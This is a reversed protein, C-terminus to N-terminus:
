KWSNAYATNIANELGHQDEGNFMAVLLLGNEYYQMFLQLGQTATLGLYGGKSHLRVSDPATKFWQQGSDWGIDQQLMLQKQPEALLLHSNILNFLFTSLEKISLQVGASGPGPSSNRFDTGNSTGPPYSYFLTQYNVPPTYQVNQINLPTYISDQMYKVFLSYTEADINSTANNHYGQLYPILIRCLDYAANSYNYKGINNTDIGSQVYQQLGTYNDAPVLSDIFGGRHLLLMRFTIKRITPHTVWTSPLFAAITTDLSYKNRDLLKLVATATIVKTVSAPNFRYSLMFDTKPPDADTRKLGGAKSTQYLGYQLVFGYKISHQSLGNALNAAM